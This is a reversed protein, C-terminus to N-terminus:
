FFHINNTIKIYYNIFVVLVTSVLLSVKGPLTAFFCKPFHMFIIFLIKEFKFVKQCHKDNRFCFCVKKFM